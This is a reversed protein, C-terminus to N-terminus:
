DKQLEKIANLGEAARGHSPRIKLAKEFTNRARTMFGLKLYIHGLEAFYDANDPSRHLAKLISMEAEKIKKNRLLSIGYYFHYDAVADDLYVAQGFLTVANEYNQTRLSERGQRYKEQAMERSNMVPSKQQEGSTQHPEQHSLSGSKSLERYAENIYAFIVNLKEKLGDSQIFLYRDPHYEKAMTHYAHKIEQVTSGSQLGLVGRYGLAKHELYLKEIRAALEPDFVKEAQPTELGESKKQVPREAEMELLRANSLAYLSRLTDEENLPSVALVDNLSTKGSILSLIKKDKEELTLRDLISHTDSSISVSASQSLYRNKFTDIRDAKGSARYLLDNINLKLRVLGGPQLTEDRFFFKAGEVNCLDTIVTEARQQAAAALEELTLYSMELLVSELRKGTEQVLSLVHNYQQSSIKDSEILIAALAEQERDSSSFVMEGDKFYLKKLSQATEIHLVGTKRARQIGFLLDSLRYYDLMGEFLGMRIIGVKLGAFMKRTWIIKGTTDLNIDRIKLDLFQANLDAKGKLLIAMGCPSYDTLVAPVPEGNLILEFPLDFKRRPFSRKNIIEQM